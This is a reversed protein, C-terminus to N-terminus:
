VFDSGLRWSVLLYVFFNGYNGMIFGMVVIVIQELGKSGMYFMEM